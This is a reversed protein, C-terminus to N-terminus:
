WFAAMKPRLFRLVVSIRLRVHCSITEPLQFRLADPYWAQGAQNPTSFAQLYLTCIRISAVSPNLSPETLTFHSHVISVSEWRGHPVLSSIKNSLATSSSLITFEPWASVQNLKYSFKTFGNSLDSAGCSCLLGCNFRAFDVTFSLTRFGLCCMSQVYM